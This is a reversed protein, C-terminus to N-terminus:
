QAVRVILKATPHAPYFVRQAFLFSAVCGANLAFAAIAWTIDAAAVSTTVLFSSAVTLGFGFPGMGLLTIAALLEPLERTRWALLLLRTGVLLSALCFLGIAIFALNAMPPRDSEPHPGKIEFLVHSM